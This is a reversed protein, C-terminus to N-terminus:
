SSLTICFTGRFHLCRVLGSMKLQGLPTQLLSNANYYREGEEERGGGKSRCTAMLIMSLVRKSASFRRFTARSTSIM